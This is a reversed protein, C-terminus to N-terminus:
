SGMNSVQTVLQEIKAEIAVTISQAHHSNKILNQLMVFVLHALSPVKSEPNHGSRCFYFPELVCRNISCCLMGKDRSQLSLHYIGSVKVVPHPYM